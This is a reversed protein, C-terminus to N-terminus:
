QKGNEKRLSWQKDVTLKMEPIPKEEGKKKQGKKPTDGKDTRPSSEVAEEGLPRQQPWEQQHMTGFIVYLPSLPMVCFVDMEAKM